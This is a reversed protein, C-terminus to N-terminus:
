VSWTKPTALIPLHLRTGGAGHVVGIAIPRADILDSDCPRAGTGSNVPFAPFCAGAISLRLAEGPSITVCTARMPIHVDGVSADEVTAYGEALPLVRGEVTVRSLVCHLDVSASKTQFAVTAAVRGALTFAAAAPAATFTLVEPRADIAARDLPGPPSGLCGGRSPAPRWPDHSLYDVGAEGPTWGLAGDRMDCAARGTGSTWLDRDPGPLAPLDRWVCVGMDFLRVPAWDPAPGGKLAHDFFAIQRADIDSEAAAGFDMDGLRRQWPFHAWPGVVLMGQLAEFAALTGPLHSDYFGGIFLMKLGAARLSDVRSAPSIRQWYADDAPRDLWDGYHGYRSLMAMVAPRSPNPQDALMGQAGARLAISAAGDKARRAAEAAMQAGWRLNGELPVAGNETAWDRYIDWGIMAPAIAQLAPGAESAALLQNSGQYSFGFMGVSGNSGPLSAAWAVTAAGDAAEDEFLRLDGDSEGRGRVDQIVVIYGQAAYWAPPAYCLSSAIRRGYAHRMLLVPFPGPGDPRWIDAHLAVGDPLVLVGQELIM